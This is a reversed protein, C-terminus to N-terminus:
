CLVPHQRNLFQKLTRCQVVSGIVSLM